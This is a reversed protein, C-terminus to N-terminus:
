DGKTKYKITATLLIIAAWTDLTYPIDLSPFLTNLSWITLFPAIIILACIM